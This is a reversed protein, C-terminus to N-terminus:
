AISTSKILYKKSFQLWFYKYWNLLVWKIFYKYLKIRPQQETRLLSVILCPPVQTSLFRWCIQLIFSKIALSICFSLCTITLCAVLGHLLSLYLAISVHILLCTPYEMLVTVLVLDSSYYILGSYHGGQLFFFFFPLNSQSM